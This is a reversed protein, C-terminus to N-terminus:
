EIEGQDKKYQEILEFLWDIDVFIDDEVDLDYELYQEKERDYIVDEFWNNNGFYIIGKEEAEYLKKDTTIGHSELFEVIRYSTNGKSVVDDETPVHTIRVEGNAECFYDFREDITFSLVSGNYWVSDFRHHKGYMPDICVESLRHNNKLKDSFAILDKITFM